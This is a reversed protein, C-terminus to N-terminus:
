PCRSVGQLEKIATRVKYSRIHPYNGGAVSCDTRRGFSCAAEGRKSGSGATPGGGRGPLRGRLDRWLRGGPGLRRGRLRLRREADFRLQLGRPFDQGRRQGGQRTRGVTTM